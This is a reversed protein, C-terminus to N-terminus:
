LPFRRIIQDNLMHLRIVGGVDVIKHLDVGVGDNYRVSFGKGHHLLKERLHIEVATGQLHCVPIRKGQSGM